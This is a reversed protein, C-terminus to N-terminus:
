RDGVSTSIKMERSAGWRGSRMLRPAAMPARSVLTSHVRVALPTAMGRHLAQGQIIQAQAPQDGGDHETQGGGEKRLWARLASFTKELGLSSSQDPALRREQLLPGDM